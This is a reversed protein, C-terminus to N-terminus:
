APTATHARATRAQLDRLVQLEEASPPPTEM